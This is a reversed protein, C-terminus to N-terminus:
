IKLLNTNGSVLEKEFQQQVQQMFDENAPDVQIGKESILHGLVVRAKCMLGCKKDSLALHAEECHLHSKEINRLAEQFSDGFVFFIMWTSKWVSWTLLFPWSKGKFPLRPM